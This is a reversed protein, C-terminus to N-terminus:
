HIDCRSRQGMNSQDVRPSGLNLVPLLIEVIEEVNVQDGAVVCGVSQVGDILARSVGLALPGNDDKLVYSKSEVDPRAPAALGQQEASLEEAGMAEIGQITREYFGTWQGCVGLFTQVFHRSTVPVDEAKAENFLGTPLSILLIAVKANFSM